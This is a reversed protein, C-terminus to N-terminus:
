KKIRSEISRKLTLEDVYEIDGNAPLGFSLRSVPINTNKMLNEIYIATTEGEPSFPTALIVEKLSPNVRDFLTDINVDEVSIGKLPNILGNLSHYLGDYGNTSEVTLIDKTDKLVMIKSHDRQPNSCFDCIDKTTLMGCISCQKISSSIKKIEESFLLAEEKSFKEILSYAYRKATKNGVGPLKEFYSILNDLFSLEPM